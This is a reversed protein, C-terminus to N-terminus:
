VGQRLHAIPDVARGGLTEGPVRHTFAHVDPDSSQDLEDLTGSALIQGRGLMIARDSITRISALHHSVVVLTIGLVDRFQLLLEDIEASVVPDLGASPEDCFVLEPDLVSARALGARRRQGGSLQSPMRDVMGGLGVLGLKIHALEVIVPEPLSTLERLPLALNELLSLSGFLADQQFLLGTRRRVANQEEERLELFPEGFLRVSGSIAPILGTVTALLTSKGSGSGGLLAVIEGRRVELNVGELVPVGDHGVALDRCELLVEREVGRM